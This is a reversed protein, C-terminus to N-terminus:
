QYKAKLIKLEQMPNPADSKIVVDPESMDVDGAPQHQNGDKLPKERQYSDKEPIEHDMQENYGHSEGEEKNNNNRRM